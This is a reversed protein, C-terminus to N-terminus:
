QRRQSVLLAIDEATSSIAFGEEMLDVGFHKEIEIIFQVMVMSDYGFAQDLPKAATLSEDAFVERALHLVTELDSM